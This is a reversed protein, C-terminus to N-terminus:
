FLLLPMETLQQGITSHTHSKSLKRTKSNQNRIFYQLHQCAVSLLITCACQMSFVMRLRPMPHLWRYLM